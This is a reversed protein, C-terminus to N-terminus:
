RFRQLMWGRGDRFQLWVENINTNSHKTKWSWMHSVVHIFGSGHIYSDEILQGGGGEEGEKCARMMEIVMLKIRRDLM